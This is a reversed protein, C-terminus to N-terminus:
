RLIAKKVVVNNIKKEYATTYTVGGSIIDIQSINFSVTASTFSPKLKFTITKSLVRLGNQQRTTSDVVLQIPFTVNTNLKDSPNMEIYVKIKASSDYSFLGLDDVKISINASSNDSIIKKTISFSKIMNTADIVFLNIPTLNMSNPASNISYSLIPTFNFTGERLFTIKYDITLSTPTPGLDVAYNFSPNTTTIKQLAIYSDNVALAFNNIVTPIDLSKGFASIILKADYQTNPVYINGSGVIQFTASIGPMRVFEVQGLNAEVSGTTEGNLTDYRRFTLTAKGLNYIGESNSTIKFSVEQSAPTTGGNEFTVPNFTGILKGNEVRWGAPMSTITLGSPIPYEVTLNDYTVALNIIRFIEQLISNLASPNSIYYSKGSATSAMLDIFTKDVDAGTTDVGVVFVKAGSQALTQVASLTESKTTNDPQSGPGDVLPYGNKTGNIYFTPMGDTIFVVYKDNGSPSSDLLAKAKNLAAEMNTGGSAVMNDIYTKANNVASSSTLDILNQTCNNPLSYPGYISSSNGKNWTGNQYYFGKIYFTSNDNIFTDFDVIGLKDGSKASNKFSDILNKAANKAATMKGNSSMSGSSDVVLVVSVPSRTVNISGTPTLRLKVEIDNGVYGKSKVVGGNFGISVSSTDAAKAKTSFYYFGSCITMFILLVGIWAMFRRKM